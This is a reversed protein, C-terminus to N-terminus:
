KARRKRRLFWSVAAVVASVIAFTGISALIRVNEGKVMAAVVIAAAIPLLFFATAQSVLRCGTAEQIDEAGGSRPSCLASFPCSHCSTGKEEM